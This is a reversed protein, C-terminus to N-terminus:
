YKNIVGALFANEIASYRVSNSVLNIIELAVRIAIHQVASSPGGEVSGWACMSM